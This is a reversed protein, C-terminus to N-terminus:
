CRWSKARRRMARRSPQAAPLYPSSSSSGAPSAWGSNSPAGVVKGMGREGIAIGNIVVMHLVVLAKRWAERLPMAVAQFPLGRIHRVPGATAVGWSTYRLRLSGPYYRRLLLANAVQLPQARLTM